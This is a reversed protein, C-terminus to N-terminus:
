RGHIDDEMIKVTFQIFISSMAMITCLGLIMGIANEINTM